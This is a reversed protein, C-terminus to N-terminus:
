KRYDSNIWSLKKDTRIMDDVERPWLKLGYGIFDGGRNYLVPKLMSAYRPEIHGYRTPNVAYFFSSAAADAIQLGLTRGSSFAKIQEKRIISWDVRVDKPDEKLIDLYGKMENYSMGSRSSFIVEASGDGIDSNTKHDRCFWSVRELLLRVSYFYLRYRERFKEPERLSPKHVLINIIRLRANSIKDIYPIRQEHKLDRFHLTKKEPKGLLRRIDDVLRVTEFDNVARTIVGSLVFWESSSKHFQFGEDGSEDVYVLFSPNMKTPGSNIM